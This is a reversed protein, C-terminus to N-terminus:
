SRIYEVAERTYRGSRTQTGLQVVRGYKRAAEVMKRGEWVSHSAPKEVYVDKGAQCAHITPLAHWHDPTCVFLAHVNKDDLIERYDKVAKPAKGTLKEAQKIGAALRGADPDCMYAFDLNKRAAMEKVLFNGRGGCGMFGIVIRDDAGAARLPAPRALSAAAVGAAAVVSRNLFERRSVPSRKM